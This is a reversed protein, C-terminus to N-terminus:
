KEMMRNLMADAISGPDGLSGAELLARMRAVLETRIQPTAEAVTAVATSALAADPSLEVRDQTAPKSTQSAQRADALAKDLRQAAISELNPRNGEIKM